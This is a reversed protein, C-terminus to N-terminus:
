APRRSAARISQILAAQVDTPMWARRLTIGIRRQILGRPHPRSKLLGASREFEIQADSLLMLRDSNALIVRSVSLSNCEIVSTPPLRGEFLDDFHRRLPSGMRPAVWGYRRLDAVTLRKTKLTPHGARMVISLPDSFLPEQVVDTLALDDRLAGVLFDVEGRRLGALLDEYPGELVTIRHGPNDRSFREVAIPVIRSRALPMAGIVTRGISEGRLALIESIAQRLESFALLSYRALTEAQRSPRVGYSTAEFFDVGIAHELDHAARHLTPPSAGISRAALVFSGHRAIAALIALRRASMARILTTAGHPSGAGADRAGAAVLDLARRARMALAAGAPTTEIRGGVRVLLQAGYFRELNKLGQTLAPQSLGLRRSAPSVGGIELVTLFGHLHWLNPLDEGAAERDIM